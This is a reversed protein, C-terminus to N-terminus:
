LTKRSRRKLTRVITGRVNQFCQLKQQMDNDYEWPVDFGVFKFHSVEGLIKGDVV